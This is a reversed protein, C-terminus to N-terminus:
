DFLYSLEGNQVEVNVRSVKQGNMLRSLMERSISPLMTNTLIADIMRGGSELETCREVILRVVDESYEFPVKHNEVIRSEIRRLQLKCINAVM